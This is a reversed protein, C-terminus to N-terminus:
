PEIWLTATGGLRVSNENFFLVRLDLKLKVNDRLKGEWVLSDGMKRYAYDAIGGFKAGKDADREQYSILTGPINKGVDVGYTVPMVFKTGADGDIAQSQPQPSEIEVSATGGLHASQESVLLVRLNLDLLVGKGTAGKWDLSDGVKKLARQGGITFEATKDAIGALPIDTGPVNKGREVAFEVPGKYVLAGTSTNNQCGALLLYLLACFVLALRKKRKYMM